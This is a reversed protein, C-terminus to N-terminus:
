FLIVQAFAAGTPMPGRFVTCSPEDAHLFECPQSKGESRTGQSQDRQSGGWGVCGGFLSGLLARQTFNLPHAQASYCRRCVAALADVFVEEQQM